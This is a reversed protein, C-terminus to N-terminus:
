LSIIYNKFNLLNKNLVFPKFKHQFKILLNNKFGIVSLLKINILYPYSKIVKIQFFTNDILIDM